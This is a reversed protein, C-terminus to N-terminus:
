REGNTVLSAADCWLKFAAEVDVKASDVTDSQGMYATGTPQLMILTWIAEGNSRQDIYGIRCAGSYVAHRTKSPNSRFSLM